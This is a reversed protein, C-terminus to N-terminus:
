FWAPASLRLSFNYFSCLSVNRFFNVTDKHVNISFWSSAHFKMWKPKRFNLQFDHPFRAFHGNKLSKWFQHVDITKTIEWHNDLRSFFCPCKQFGWQICIEFISSIKVKLFNRLTKSDIWFSIFLLTLVITKWQKM